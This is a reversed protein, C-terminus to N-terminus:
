IIKDFKRLKSSSINLKTSKVFVWAKRGLKKSAISNLAKTSFGPRAFVIIKALGSIKKWNKWKHFNILNDAGMLFFYNIKKNKYKLFKLVDYTNQSYLNKSKNSIIIKKQKKLIKKSLYIRKKINLLPKSKFPNQNTIIWFIKKLKFKEIAIKSIKVHAYHPPDFTGGLIGLKISKKKLQNNM